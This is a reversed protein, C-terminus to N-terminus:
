PKSRRKERREQAEALAMYNDRAEAQLARITEEDMDGCLRRADREAHRESEEHCAALSRHDYMKAFTGVINQRLRRGIKDSSM